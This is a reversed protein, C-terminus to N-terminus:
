FFVGIMTNPPSALSSLDIGATSIAIVAALFIGLYGVGDVVANQGGADLKTKPLVQEKLMNQIAKTIVYGIVFIVIFAIFDSPTIRSEGM